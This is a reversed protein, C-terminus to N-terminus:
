KGVAQSALSDKRKLLFMEEDRLKNEKDRLHEERRRWWKVEDKDGLAASEDAKDMAHKIDGEIKDLQKEVNKIDL